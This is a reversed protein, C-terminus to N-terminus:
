DALFNIDEVRLGYLTKFGFLTLPKRLGKTQDILKDDNSPFKYQLYDEEIKIWKMVDADEELFLL